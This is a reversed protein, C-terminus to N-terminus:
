ILISIIKKNLLRSIVIKLKLFSIKKKNQETYCVREDNDFDIINCEINYKQLVHQLAYFQLVGGYNYEQYLLPVLGVKM